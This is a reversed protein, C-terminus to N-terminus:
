RQVPTIWFERLLRSLDRQVCVFLYVMSTLCISIKRISDMIMYNISFPHGVYTDSLWAMILSYCPKDGSRWRTMIQFLASITGNRNFDLYFYCLKWYLSILKLDWRSFPPSKTPAQLNWTVTYHLKQLTGTNPFAHNCLLVCAVAPFCSQSYKWQWKSITTKWGLRETVM